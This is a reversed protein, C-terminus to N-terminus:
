IHTNWHEVIYEYVGVECVNVLVVVLIDEEGEWLSFWDAMLAHLNHLHGGVQGFQECESKGGLFDPGLSMSPSTGSGHRWSEGGM